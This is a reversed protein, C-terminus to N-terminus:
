ELLPIAEEDMVSLTTTSFIMHALILHKYFRKFDIEPPNPHLSFVLKWMIAGLVGNAVGVFVDDPLDPNMKRIEPLRRYLWAFLFGVSAHMMWGSVESIKKESSPLIRKVLKGLLAPERFDKDKKGSLFYSFLTMAATGAVAAVVLNKNKM